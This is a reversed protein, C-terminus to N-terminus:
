FWDKSKMLAGSLHPPPCFFMLLMVLIFFNLCNGYIEGGDDNDDDNTRGDNDHNQGCEIKFDEFDNWESKNM